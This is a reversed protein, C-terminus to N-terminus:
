RKTYWAVALDLLRQYLEPEGGLSLAHAQGAAATRERLADDEWARRITDALAVPREPAVQIAQDETLMDSIGPGQSVIVCKGLLMSNLCVSIGSAVLSSALIPLVVLKANELTEILKAQSGDDDLLAINKPISDLAYSFRSGHARLSQFDPKPIAAPYPLQAMARFFTDYDRQSRGVCLVYTGQKAASPEYRYRLNPKFHTWSSREPTIGFYRGYGASDKFYNIFHGVRKLVLKKAVATLHAKLTLPRRLVLDVAVIPVVVGSANRLSARALRLTLDVDCNVLFLDADHAAVRFDSASGAYKSTGQTGGAARWEGPFREFNSVLRILGM